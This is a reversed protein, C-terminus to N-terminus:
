TNSSYGALAMVAAMRNGGFKETYRARRTKDTPDTTTMWHKLPTLYNQVVDGVVENSSLYLLSVYERYNSGGGLSLINDLTAQNLRMVRAINEAESAQVKGIMVLASNNIIGKMHEIDEIEQSIGTPYFRYTRGVKFIDAVFSSAEDIEAMAGLEEFVAYKILEPHALGDRWVLDILLIMGIRRLARATEDKMASIDFSTVANNINVTTPGDLFSALEAHGTFAGLRAALMNIASRMTADPATGSVKPLNRIMEVFGTLYIPTHHEEFQGNGIPLSRLANTYAAEIASNLISHDLEKLGGSELLMAKFMGMLMGRKKASPMVEGPALDFMNVRVPQGNPLIAGPRIVIVEGETAEVTPDYDNKLDLIYIRAGLARLNILFTMNLNSKGSGAGGIIFMGANNTDVGHNIPTLGGWRNRFVVIPDATGAWAAVQPILGAVNVARGDFLYQNTLGNFPELLEFQRINDVNGIRALGGGMQGIESRARNTAYNLEELTRAYIVLSLGFKVVTSRSRKIAYLAEEMEDSIASNGSGGLDQMSRQAGDAQYALVSKAKTQDLIVFDIMIMYDTGGMASMLQELMGAQTGEGAESWNVVNVLRTGVVLYGPNSKDMSSETLQRRPSAIDQTADAQLGSVTAKGTPVLGRYINPLDGFQPNRYRYILDAIDQTQMRATELGAANMAHLLRESYGNAYAAITDRERLSLSRAKPVKRDIKVTLFFSTKKLHGSRRDKELLDNDEKIIAQLLPENVNPNHMMRQVDAQPMDRNEIIIRGRSGVPLAQSLLVNQTHKIQDRVQATVELATPLHFQYGIEAAGNRTFYVGDHIGLTAAKDTWSSSRVPLLKQKVWAQIFTM